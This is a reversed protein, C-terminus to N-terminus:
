KDVFALLKTIIFYNTNAYCNFMRNILLEIWSPPIAYLHQRVSNHVETVRSAGCSYNTCYLLM